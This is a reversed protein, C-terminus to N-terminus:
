VTGDGGYVGVADVGAALAEEAYRRGDGADKTVKVEWDVGSDNFADNLISLVPRDQGSAPNVIIHVRRFRPERRESQGAGAEALTPDTTM